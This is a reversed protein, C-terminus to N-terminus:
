VMSAIRRMGDSFVATEYSATAYMLRGPRSVSMGGHQAFAM